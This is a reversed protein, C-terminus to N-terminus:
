PFNTSGPTPVTPPTAAADTLVFDALNNNSDKGDYPSRIISRNQGPAAVATGEVFANAATGWGVSDVIAGTNAPGSRVAV